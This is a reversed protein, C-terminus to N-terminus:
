AQCMIERAAVAVAVAPVFVRQVCCQLGLAGVHHAGHQLLQRPPAPQLSRQAVTVSLGQQGQQAEQGLVDSLWPVAPQQRVHRVPPSRSSHYKLHAQARIYCPTALADEQWSAQM